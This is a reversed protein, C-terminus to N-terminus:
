ADCDQPILTNQWRDHFQATPMQLTAPQHESSSEDRFLPGGTPYDLFTLEIGSETDTLKDGTSIDAPFNERSYSTM